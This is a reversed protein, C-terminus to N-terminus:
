ARRAQNTKTMEALVGDMTRAVRLTDDQGHWPHEGLGNDLASLVAALM